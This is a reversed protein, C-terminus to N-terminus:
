RLLSVPPPESPRLRQRTTDLAVTIVYSSLEVRPFLYFASLPYGELLDAEQQRIEKQVPGQPAQLLAIPSHQVTM